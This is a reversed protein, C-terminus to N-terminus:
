RGPRIQSKSTSGGALTQTVLRLTHIVAELAASGHIAPGFRGCSRGVLPSGPRRHHHQWTNGTHGLSGGTEATPTSPRRAHLPKLMLEIELLRQLDVDTSEARTKRLVPTARHDVATSTRAASRVPGAVLDATSSLTRNSTCRDAIRSRGPSRDDSRPM